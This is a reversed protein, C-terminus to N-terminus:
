GPLARDVVIHTIPLGFKGADAVVRKELWNSQEEPHTVIVIEDAAFDYLADAIAQVPSGDGVQARAELGLEGLCAVAAALKKEAEAVAKDTDSVWHQLRHETLAPAIVFIEPETTAAYSKVAEGVAPGCTENAVVLLRRREGTPEKTGQPGGTANM